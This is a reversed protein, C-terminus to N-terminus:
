GLSCSGMIKMTDWLWVQMDVALIGQCEGQTMLASAIGWSATCSVYRVTDFLAHHVDSPDSCFAALAGVALALDPRTCQVLHLLSGVVAQYAVKDTM